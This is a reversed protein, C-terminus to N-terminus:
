YRIISISNIFSKLQSLNNPYGLKTKYSKELYFFEKEFSKDFYSNLPKFLTYKSNQSPILTLVTPLYRFYKEKLILAGNFEFPIKLQLVSHSRKNLCTQLLSFPENFEKLSVNDITEEEDFYCLNDSHRFLFNLYINGSFDNDFVIIHTRDYNLKLNMLTISFQAVQKGHKSGFIGISNVGSYLTYSKDGDQQSFYFSSKKNNPSEGVLYEKYLNRLFGIGRKEKNLFHDCWNIANYGIRFENNEISQYVDLEFFKHEIMQMIFKIYQKENENAVYNLINIKSGCIYINSNSTKEFNISDNLTKQLSLQIKNVIDNM